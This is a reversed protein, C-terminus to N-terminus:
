VMANKSLNYRETEIELQRLQRQRHEELVPRHDLMTYRLTGKRKEGEKTIVSTNETYILGMDALISVSKQVTNICMDLERGITKFSPYCQHTNRNTCKRLYCYVKFASPPLDLEFIDNPLAFFNRHLENMENM